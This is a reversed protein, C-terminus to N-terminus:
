PVSGAPRRRVRAALSGIGEPLFLITLLLASGLIVQWFGPLVAIAISRLLEFLLAGVFTAVVSSPGALIAVFVFGGSTTWYAMDPDVHAVVLATLAGGLGALLGAIILKLHVLRTASVGLYEVRIENDRLPVALSGAVTRLYAAIAVAAAAAVALTFWFLALVQMGGRPVYGLFTAASVNFGDTSGLAETKVLVGYLIMSLALSLMAIFIERYRALMFGVLFAVLAAVVCGLAVLLVADTLGTARSVLAVTYAGVAYYLAQGFSILGARWLVMM